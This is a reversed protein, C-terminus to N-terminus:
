VNLAILILTSKQAYSGPKGEPKLKQICLFSKLCYNALLHKIEGVKRLNKGRMGIVRPHFRVDLSIEQSILSELRRVTEEIEDRCANCNAEYGTINITESGSESRPIHIQVDHRAIMEKVKAGGPGILRQHYKLPM